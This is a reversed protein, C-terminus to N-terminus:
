PVARPEGGVQRLWHKKLAVRARALRSMVTGLPVNIVTAIERYSMDEVERLILVDRYDDPLDAILRGLVREEDRRISASEPDPTTAILAHGDQADHEEPLAV